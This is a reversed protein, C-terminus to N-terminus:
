EQSAGTVTEELVEEEIIESCNDILLVPKEWGEYKKLEGNLAVKRNWVRDLDGELWRLYYIINGDQDLLAHSAPSIAKRGHHAVKGQVLFNLAEEPSIEGITSAQSPQAKKLTEQIQVDQEKSSENESLAQEKIADIKEITRQILQVRLSASSRVKENQAFRAYQDYLAKVEELDRKTSSKKFEELLLKDLEQFAKLESQLEEVSLNESQTTKNHVEQVEPKAQTEKTQPQEINQTGPNEAGPQSHEKAPETNKTKTNEALSSLLEPPLKELKTIFDAHLWGRAESPPVLALFGNEEIVQGADNRKLTVEKHSIQGIPYHATDSTVRINVNDGTILAKGSGQNQVLSKHVWCSVDEPLGVEVWNDKTSHIQLLDSKKLVKITFYQTSPGSRLRVSSANVEGYLLSSKEQAYLSTLTALFLLSLAIFLCEFFISSAKM